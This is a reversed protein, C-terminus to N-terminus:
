PLTVKLKNTLTKIFEIAYSNVNCYSLDLIELLSANHLGNSKSMARTGKIELSNSDDSDDEDYEYDFNHDGLYLEKLDLNQELGKSLSQAGAVGIKCFALQLITLNKWILMGQAIVMAGEGGICLHYMYVKDSKQLYMRDYTKQVEEYVRDSISVRLENFLEKIQEEKNFTQQEIERLSKSEENSNLTTTTPKTSDERYYYDNMDFM